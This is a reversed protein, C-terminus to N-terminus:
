AAKRLLPVMHEYLNFIRGQVLFGQERAYNYCHYTGGTLSGDYMAVVYKSHDVMWVNRRLLKIAEYPPESVWVVQDAQELISFYWEKQKDTWKKEQGQFPCATVLRVPLGLDDRCMLAAVALMMDFGIAMGSIITVPDEPGVWPCIAEAIQDRLWVIAPLWDDPDRPIVVGDPRHGTGSLSDGDSLGPLLM